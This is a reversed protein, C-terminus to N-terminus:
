IIDKAEAAFTKFDDLHDLLAFLKEMDIEVYEHVLLNRLGIMGLLKETLASSLHKEKGLIEVCESYTKPNGLNYKTVIHCAIDIIIQVSEFLGYRLIWQLQLNKKIENLKYKKKFKQLEVINEELQNLRELM